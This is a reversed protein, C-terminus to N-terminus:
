KINKILNPIAGCGKVYNVTVKKKQYSVIINHNILKSLTTKKIISKSIQKKKHKLCSEICHLNKLLDVM